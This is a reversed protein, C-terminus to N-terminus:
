SQKIGLTDILAQNIKGTVPLNNAAQYKAIAASTAPGVMGDISGNYYGQRTLEVQVATEIPYTAYVPYTVYYPQTVINWGAYAGIPAVYVSNVTVNAPTYAGNVYVSNPRYGNFTERTSSYTAGNAGQANVTRQGYAGARTTSADYTGGNPGTASSSATGFRGFSSGSADYTAGNAGTAEVSGSRYRGYSEGQVDVSGGRAGSYSRDVSGGGGRRVGAEVSTVSVLLLGFALGAAASLPSIKM